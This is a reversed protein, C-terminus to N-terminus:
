LKTVLIKGTAKDFQWDLTDGEAWGLKAMVEDPIPMILDGTEADEELTVTYLSAKGPKRSIKSTSTPWAWDKSTSKSM